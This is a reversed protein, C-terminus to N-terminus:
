TFMKLTFTFYILINRKTISQKFICLVLEWINKAFEFLNSLKTLPKISYTKTSSSNYIIEYIFYLILNYFLDYNSCKVIWYKKIVQKLNLPLYTYFVDMEVSSWFVILNLQNKITILKYNYVCLMISLPKILNIVYLFLFFIVSIIVCVIFIFKCCSFNASVKMIDNFGGTWYVQAIFINLPIIRWLEQFCATVWRIM